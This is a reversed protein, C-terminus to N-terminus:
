GQGWRRYMILRYPMIVYVWVGKFVYKYLYKVSSIATCVEVNIHCDYRLSLVPSHPVVYANKPDVHRRRYNPYGDDDMKTSDCFAKPFRRKCKGNVLCRDKCTHINHKSIIAHLRPQKVPDPLEASVFGDIEERAEIQNKLRVLMHAHPLGRKQFEVVFFCYVVPGFFEGSMIDQKLQDLKMKFVRCVIDSRYHVPIPKSMGSYDRYVESADHVEPWDPNCTFTIFLSPKGHKRVIAMSNQYSASMYRDSGTYSAPLIVRQGMTAADFTDEGAVADQVKKYMDARIKTQNETIWRLSNTQIKCYQDTWYQQGIRGSMHLPSFAHRQYMNFKTYELLSLRKSTPNRPDQKMNFDWGGEAFPFLLPYQLPDYASSVESVHRIQNRRPMVVIDRGHTGAEHRMCIAMEPVTPINHTKADRGSRPRIAVCIREDMQDDEAGQPIQEMREKVSYLRRQSNSM